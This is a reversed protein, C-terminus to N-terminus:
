NSIVLCVHLHLESDSNFLNKFNKEVSVLGHRISDDFTFPMDSTLESQSVNPRQYRLIARQALRLDGCEGEGRLRIWYDRDTQNAEIVFDYSDGALSVISEVRVPELPTGDNAIVTLHHGDVSMSIMCFMVGVNILRFRYRFGRQVTFTALPVRTTPSLPFAGRGNVLITHEPGYAANHVFLPYDAQFSNEEFNWTQFLLLLLSMLLFLFKKCTKKIKSDVLFLLFHVSSLSTYDHIIMYHDTLDFDYLNKHVDYSDRVILAGFVGDKAFSLM